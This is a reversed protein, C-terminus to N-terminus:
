ISKVSDYVYIHFGDDFKIFYVSPRAEEKHIVKGVRRSGDDKTYEVHKGILGDMFELDVDVPPIENYEPM